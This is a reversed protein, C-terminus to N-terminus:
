ADNATEPTWSISMDEALVCTLVLKDGRDTVDLKKVMLIEHEDIEGQEYAIGSVLLSLSDKDLTVYSLTDITTM